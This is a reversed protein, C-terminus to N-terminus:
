RRGPVVEQITVVGGHPTGNLLIPRGRAEFVRREGAADVADFRLTFAEGRAAQSRLTAEAPWPKGDADTFTPRSPSRLIQQSAANELVVAGSGDVMLCADPMAMIAAELRAGTATLADSSVVLEENQADLDDTTAKMEEITAQLEENLTELEENTAQLEENLTEVEESAAQLQENGVLQEEAQSRADAITRVM